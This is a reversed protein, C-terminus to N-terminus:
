GGLKKMFALYSEELTAPRDIQQLGSALAMEDVTGFFRIEGDYLLHIDNALDSVEHLIHSTLIISRGDSAIETILQRLRQATEADVANTPEDLLLIPSEKLLGRAIHLRQLLGMSLNSVRQRKKESLGVQKLVKAVCDARERRKIGMLTAFFFLNEEVTANRYFGNSGGFVVSVLQNLESLHNTLNRGSVMVQGADATLYGALIKLLTTKGAGNPGIFSVIEGPYVDFSLGKLVPTDKYKKHLNHVMLIPTKERDSM